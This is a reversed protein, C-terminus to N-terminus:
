LISNNFKNAITLGIIVFVTISFLILITSLMSALIARGLTLEEIPEKSIMNEPKEKTKFKLKNKLPKFLKFIYYRLYSFANELKINVSFYTIAQILTGILLAFIAFIIIPKILPVLSEKLIYTEMFVSFINGEIYKNLGFICLSIVIIWTLLTFIVPLFLRINEYKVRITLYLSLKIVTSIITYIILSVFLIVLSYVIAM